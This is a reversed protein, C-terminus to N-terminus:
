RSGKSSRHGDALLPATGQGSAPLLRGDVSPFNWIDREGSRRWVLPPTVCDDDHHQAM